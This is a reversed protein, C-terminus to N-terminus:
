RNYLMKTCRFSQQLPSYLYLVNVNVFLHRTLSSVHVFAIGKCDDYWLYNQEGIVKSYLYSSM